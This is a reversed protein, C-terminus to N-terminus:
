GALRPAHFASLDDEAGGESQVTKTVHHAVIAMVLPYTAKLIKIWDGSKGLDTLAALWAPRKCVFATFAEVMDDCQEEAVGACHPDRRKWLEIPLEVLAAITERAESRAKATVKPPPAASERRASRNPRKPQPDPELLFDPDLDSDSESFSSYDSDPESDPESETKFTLRDLLGQAM